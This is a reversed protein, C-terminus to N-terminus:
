YKKDIKIGVLEPVKTLYPKINNSQSLLQLFETVSQFLSAVLEYKLGYGNHLGNARSTIILQFRNTLELMKDIHRQPNDIGNILFLTNSSSQRLLARFDALIESATKYKGSEYDQLHKKELLKFLCLV